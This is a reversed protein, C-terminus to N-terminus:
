RSEGLKDSIKEYFSRSAVHALQIEYQSRRVTILDGNQLKRPEGGDFSIYARKDRLQPEITVTRNPALVFPKTKLTHACIPTVIINEAAPEVIPGGASMSYATSGTPTAIVVGDGSFNMMNFGDGKISLDIMRAEGSVVVDNLAFDSYLVQGERTVEADLMMRRDIEYNGKAAQVVLDLDERELDAIFGKHGLNIGLIPVSYKAAERAAHLITGDGGFVILLDANKISESLPPTNSFRPMEYRSAGFPVSYVAYIGNAILIRYVAQATALGEDREPNPCLIINKM